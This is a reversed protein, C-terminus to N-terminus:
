ARTYFSSGPPTPAAAARWMDVYAGSLYPQIVVGVADSVARFASDDPDDSTIGIALHPQGRGIVVQSLFAEHVAPHRRSATAAAERIGAPVRAPLGVLM